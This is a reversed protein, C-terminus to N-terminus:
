SVLEAKEKPIGCGTDTVSVEIMKKGDDELKAEIVISGSATNKISNNILNFLVQLVRDKDTNIILKPHSSKVLMKVKSELRVSFSQIAFNCLAVIDTENKNFSIKGSDIKSICLIDDILKLLIDNNALIYEGYTTKEDESIAYDGNTLLQSFGVVANLPTRIEHSMDAIFKSKMKNAKESEARAKEAINKIVVM